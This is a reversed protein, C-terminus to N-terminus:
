LHLKHVYLLRKRYLILRLNSLAKLNLKTKCNKLTRSKSPPEDKRESTSESVRRRSTDIIAEGYDRGLLSVMIRWPERSRPTTRVNYVLEVVSTMGCLCYVEAVIADRFNEECPENKMVEENLVLNHSITVAYSPDTNMQANRDGKSMM